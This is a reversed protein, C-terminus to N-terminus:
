YRSLVNIDRLEKYGVFIISYLSISRIILQILVGTGHINYIYPEAFIISVLTLICIIKFSLDNFKNSHYYILFIIFLALIALPVFRLLAFTSSPIEDFWKNMPLLCIIIRIAAVGFMLKDLSANKRKSYRLNYIDYLVLYLITVIIANGMRGWGIIHLNDEIGTTLISYMRPLLYISDALALILAFSGFAKYVKQGISNKLLYGGMILLPILYAIHLIPEIIKQM